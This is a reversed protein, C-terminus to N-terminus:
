VGVKEIVNRNIVKAPVGVATCNAPINNIVTAGAGIISWNGVHIGPIITTGAGVHVGDEIKVNGTLTANPSVHVFNGVKNDHEIISGSNIISHHGIFAEANIISNAMIVTGSGIKASPSLVASQHILTAFYDNHLELKNFIKRRIKNEGIAIVFKMEKYQEIITKAASIPGSIGNDTITFEKFKDDLYGVIQHKNSSSIIDRIVKSHGGQGIIVVKM